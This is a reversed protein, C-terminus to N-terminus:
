TLLVDDTYSFDDPLLKEGGLVYRVFRANLSSASIKSGSQSILESCSLRVQDVGDNSWIVFQGNVRENRWGSLNLTKKTTDGVVEAPKLKATTVVRGQLGTGVSKANKVGDADLMPVGPELRAYRWDLPYNEAEGPKAFVASCSLVGIITIVIKKM